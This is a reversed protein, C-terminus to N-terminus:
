LYLQIIPGFRVIKPMVASLWVLFDFLVETPEQWVWGAAPAAGPEGFRFAGQGDGFDIAWGRDLLFVADFVTVSHESAYEAVREAVTAITLQSEFAMLFYPRHNYFRAVDSPSAHIMNGAQHAAELAKFRAANALAGDLETSTLVAKVEGAATVGEILFLGPESPTFTFPHDIDAIVVDVQGSRRDSTDIIEGQGVALARPLYEALFERFPVEVGATGRDGRHDFKTRADALRATIQGQARAVLERFHVVPM